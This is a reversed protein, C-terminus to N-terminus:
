ALRMSSWISCVTLVRSSALASNSCRMFTIPREYCRIGSSAAGGDRGLSGFLRNFERVVVFIASGEHEIRSCM